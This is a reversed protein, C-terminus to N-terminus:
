LAPLLTCLTVSNTICNMSSPTKKQFYLNKEESYYKLFNVDKFFTPRLLKESSTLASLRYCTAEICIQLFRFLPHPVHFFPTANQTYTAITVNSLLLYRDLRNGKRKFAVCLKLFTKAYSINDLHPM